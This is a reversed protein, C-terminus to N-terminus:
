AVLAKLTALVEDMVIPTQLFHRVGQQRLRALDAADAPDAYFMVPLKPYLERLRAFVHVGSVDPLHLDLVAVDIPALPTRLVNIADRATPAPLVMYGANVLAVNLADRTGGDGIALLVTPQPDNAFRPALLFQAVFGWWGSQDGVRSSGATRDAPQIGQLILPADAAPAGAEVSFGMAASATTLGILGCWTAPSLSSTSDPSSTGTVPPATFPQSPQGWTATTAPLSAVVRRPVEPGAAPHVADPLSAAVLDHAGPLGAPGEAVAPSLPSGERQGLESADPLSLEIPALGPSARVGIVPRTSLNVAELLTFGAPCPDTMNPTTLSDPAVTTCPDVVAAPQSQPLSADPAGPAGAGVVQSSGGSPTDDAIGTGTLWTGSAVPILANTMPDSSAGDNGPQPAPPAASYAGDGALGGADRGVGLSEMQDASPDDTISTQDTTAQQDPTETTPTLPPPFTAGNDLVAGLAGGTAPPNDPNGGDTIPLPQTDDAASDASGAGADPPAQAVSTTDSGNAVPIPSAPNAPDSATADPAPPTDDTLPSGSQSASDEQSGVNGAQDDAVSGSVDATVVVEVLSTPQADDPTGDGAAASGPDTPDSADTPSATGAAALDTLMPSAPFAGVQELAMLDALVTANVAPLQELASASELSDIVRSLTPAGAALDPLPRNVNLLAISATSSDGEPLPLPSSFFLTPDLGSSLLCRYELREFALRHRFPGSLPSRKPKARRHRRWWLIRM